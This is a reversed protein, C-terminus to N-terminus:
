RERARSLLDLEAARSVAARRNNVGLKAYINKTHSRVTHLSVVLESAIEPGDLDTALLRLVELERESLPEILAQKIPTRDEARGFSTLLRRVHRPAIAQNSAAELLAAMPRGENVFLRVYGEPEALTLARELPVVAARLDGDAQHALALLVLIEIASGTRHGEDAARLLRVLLEVAEQTSRDGRDHNSVALLVRAFTIHEFECLYSLDDSASLGDEKAWGLAEGLRGQAVWVRAKLAAIPRVTPLYHSLYQHGAEELLDLGADSDGEAIRIGAMAVRWRYANQELGAHEGLEKSALLHQRAADLDNRELSLESMGVHMDAAGRVIPAGPQTARQLGREYTSMAEGLRGQAIRIDALSIACGIVDSIYGAKDLNSSCDTYLRHAEELDGTTWYALGLLGSASGRPLDDGEASLDLARRAHNMTNAVDGSALALAARYMAIAAPLRRFEEDDVVVM